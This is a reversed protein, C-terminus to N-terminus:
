LYKPLQFTTPFHKEYKGQKKIEELMSPTILRSAAQILTPAKM